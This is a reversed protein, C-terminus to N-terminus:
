HIFAEQEYLLESILKEVDSAGEGGGVSRAGSCFRSRHPQGICIILDTDPILAVLAPVGTIGNSQAATSLSLQRAFPARM